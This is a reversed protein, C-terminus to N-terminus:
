LLLYSTGTTNRVFLELPQVSSIGAVASQARLSTMELTEPIRGPGSPDSEFSTIKLEPMSLVVVYTVASITAGEFTIQCKKLTNANFDNLDDASTYEPFTLKLTIEPFGDEVPISTLGPTALPNDCATYDLAYNRTVTLEFSSPCVTTTLSGSSSDEFLFVGVGFPVRNENTTYTVSGLTTNTQGTSIVNQAIGSVSAQVIGGSDGSITFTNPLWSVGERVTVGDFLAITGFTNATDAFIGGHTYESGAGATLDAGMITFIPAWLQGDFRLDGSYGFESTINGSDMFELLSVGASEDPLQEVTNYSASIDKTLIGKDVANVSVATGWTSGVSYALTVDRGVSM